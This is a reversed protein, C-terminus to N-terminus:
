GAKAFRAARGSTPVTKAILVGNPGPFMVLLGAVLAFSLVQIPEM